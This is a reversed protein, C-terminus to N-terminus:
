NEGGQTSKGLKYRLTERPINLLKAAQTINNGTRQMAMRILNEEVAVLYSPLSLGDPPLTIEMQTPQLNGSSLMEQPLHAVELVEPAYIIFLRELVNRLERVNGPWSYRQLYIMAEESVSRVNRSLRANLVKMYHNVLAPIDERRERLPSLQVPIVNIRYFLDERFKHQDILQRLNQNTAALVRVNVPIDKTGGLHRVVRQELVRLLKAQLGLDLEAIEDLFLTGTDALEFYGVKRAHADTFAGKEFGFLESELLNSPLSACNIDIFPAASRPSHYHLARAILEKGTGSEGTILVTSDEHAAIQLIQNRLERVALSVGVLSDTSTDPRKQELVDVKRRLGQAELALRIILKIADAKFPKKIFDYAGLKLSEVAADVTAYGTMVIVLPVTGLDAVRKLLTLGSEDPLKLDLLVLNVAGEELRAIGEKVSRAALVAYGEEKLIRGLNSQITEEDDVVLIRKTM